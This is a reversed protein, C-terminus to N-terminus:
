PVGTLLAQLADIGLARLRAINDQPISAVDEHSHIARAVDARRLIHITPHPSRNTHNTVDEPAAGEFQYDPHFSVLQYQRAHGTREILAEAATFLDLYDEFDSLAPSIVLLTTQPAEARGLIMLEGVLDALIEHPDTAISKAYRILDDAVPQSAFPCLNLGIVVREVWQKTDLITPDLNTVGCTKTSKAM